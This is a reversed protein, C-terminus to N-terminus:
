DGGSTPIREEASGSPRRAVVTLLAPLVTLSVILVSGVGLTVLLGISFAGRHHAIMLSGFGIMTTLCSLAVSKGVSRPLVASEAEERYRHVILLGNEVGPAVILPLIILNALNFQLRFLQMLGATWVVGVLLPIKALFFYRLDRLNLLVLAAVGILAYVGVHRYGRVMASIVEHGEVPDGIVDPDVRRLDAVFAAQSTLEWPNDRPYARLLFTGDRGVFQRRLDSPLDAIRIPGSSVAKLLLGLKDRFDRFLEVQYSSLSQLVPSNDREALLSEFRDILARVRGMMALPPADGREWATVSEPTLMRARIRRLTSVLGDLDVPAPEVPEQNIAGLLPKLDRIVRLKREQDAPIVTAISEVKSISPLAELARTKERLEELTSALIVGYATSRESNKIIKLEWTVSETGEAQLRLVNGDFGVGSLAYLAVVTAIGSLALVTRPRRYCAELLEPPRRSRATPVVGAGARRRDWLLLLPPFVMFTSVLTLLLGVGTILGLEQLALIGTLILTFLAVATTVAAHVIGPGAGEFARELAERAPYGHGREEDYRALLHIGYDMGIGILMPALVISLMNLHGVTVAAFGFAWCVGMMLALAGMLPRVVGRFVIVVLLCVGVLSILTALGSDQQAATVEDHELAPDGTVGAKIGPFQPRLAAIEKRIGEIPRRFKLFSDPDQQVTALVFLLRKDESWLYGERDEDDGAEVFFRSWPSVYSGQTEARANLQELLAILPALDLPGAATEQEEDLFGTFLHGVLAASIQRHILQFLRNLGPEASLDELLGRYEELKGKLDALEEDSLYLLFRDELATLDFRYVVDEVGPVRTTLRRALAGAYRKAQARDRSEVVIVVRHPDGFARHYAKQLDALRGTLPALAARTSTFSLHQLAVYISIGTLVSAVVLSTWPYALTTRALWRRMSM